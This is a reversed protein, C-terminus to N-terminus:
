EQQEQNHDSTQEETESQRCDEAEDDEDNSDEEEEGADENSDEEEEEDNEDEDENGGDQEYEDLALGRIEELNDPGKGTLRTIMDAMYEVHEALERLEDNDSKLRSIQENKAEIDKHLRENEQLVDFLAKRREEAVDKWYAPPPTEQVMLQYALDSPDQNAASVEDTQTSKVEVKVKKPGRSQEALWQKRKPIAAKEAKVALDRNVALPQLVQLVPKSSSMGSKTTRSFGKVSVKSNENSKTQSPRVKSSFSM